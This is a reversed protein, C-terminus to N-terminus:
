PGATSAVRDQLDREALWGEKSRLLEAEDKKNATVLEIIRSNVSKIKVVAEKAKGILEFAKTDSKSTMEEIKKMSVEYRERLKVIRGEYEKRKEANDTLIMNRVNIGINAIDMNTDNVLGIRVMSVTVIREMDDHIKEMGSIGIWILAVMIVVLVSFGLGLRKSLNMDQLM